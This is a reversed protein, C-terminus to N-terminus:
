ASDVRFAATGQDKIMENSAFVEIAHGCRNRWGQLLRWKSRWATSARSEVVVCHGAAVYEHAATPTLSVRLEHTKIEKPVGVNM